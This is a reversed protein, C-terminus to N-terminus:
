EQMAFDQTGTYIGSTPAQGAVNRGQATAVLQNFVDYRVPQPPSYFNEPESVPFPELRDQATYHGRQFNALAFSAPSRRNDFFAKPQAPLEKPTNFQWDTLQPLQNNPNYSVDNEPGPSWDAYYSPSGMNAGQRIDQSTEPQM